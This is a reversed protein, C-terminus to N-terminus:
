IRESPQLRALLRGAVSFTVGVCLAAIVLNLEPDNGDQLTRDWQDVTELIPAGICIALIVGTALRRLSVMARSTLM